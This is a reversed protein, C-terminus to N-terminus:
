TIGFESLVKKSNLYYAKIIDNVEKFDEIKRNAMAQLLITRVQLERELEPIQKGSRKSIKTLLYLSRKQEVKDNIPNWEFPINFSLGKETVSQIEVLEKMRRINRQSEKLHTMVCVVDLSEILSASLSIPPTQLRRVLTPVSGAHFTGFSSHGSAMGQFLVYAEKGRIEGVIVYDPAQRFSERLLDFLTIEGYEKGMLNPIGFGSRTVTPMWNDHNLNLERTDEISVVRADPPIFSLVANLFTTKGSATEGVVMMNFKHEIAMWIYAVVIPSTTKFNIMHIPTWPDKTFKRITFTPGKTTVDESYTANVRSGDPLTGDLLPKAYSVYRGCKQALKEVFDTLEQIDTFIVNSRLNEYKRHVVYLPSNLGNCEIDEIYYDNLLPEIQNLGVSDRFIYYMLKLYTEKSVKTGLEVLISQVNKELYQIIQAAKETKVISINIMEELALMILRLIEVESESLKPQELSYILENQNEDWYIHAYAYPAMLPYRVNIRTREKIDPLQFIKLNPEIKFITDM